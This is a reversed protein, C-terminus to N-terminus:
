PEIIMGPLDDDSVTLAEEQYYPAKTIPQNYGQPYLYTGKENQPKEEEVIIRNDVAYPDQRIGTVQWSVESGPEGGAITFQNDKIKEAIYLNPGPAGISTLQYRFEMNLIEFYDPLVIVATGTKDLIVNGNYINMMDPSEVGSHYLYKNEPDLPHDIKFTTSGKSINGTVNLRGTFWGAYGLSNTQWGHVGFGTSTIGIVGTGSSSAEGRIAEGTTSQGYVGSGGALNVGKVGTGDPSYSRAYLAYNFGSTASAIAYMGYGDPSNSQATVGYGVGSTVSSYGFIAAASGAGTNQVRWGANGAGTISGNLNCGFVVSTPCTQAYAPSVNYSSSLAFGLLAILVIVPVFKLWQRM